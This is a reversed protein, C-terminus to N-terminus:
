KEIAKVTYKTEAELTKIVQENTPGKDTTVIWARDQQHSAKALKLGPLAELAQCVTKECGSCTMGDVQFTKVLEGPATAKPPLVVPSPKDTKETRSCGALAVLLACALCSLTLWSAPAINLKRPM